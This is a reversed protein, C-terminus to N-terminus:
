RVDAEGRRGNSSTFSSLSRRTRAKKRIMSASRAGPSGVTPRRGNARWRPAGFPQGLVKQIQAPTLMSCGPTQPAASAIRASAAAFILLATMMLALRLKSNM